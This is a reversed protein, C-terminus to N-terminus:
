VGSRIFDPEKAKPPQNSERVSGQGGAGDGRTPQVRRPLCLVAEALLAVMMSLLFLRWIEQILGDLSGARDDVRTFDLGTFLNAVRNDPLIPSRDESVDRNVALLKESGRYVGSHHAYETSVADPPGAIQQWTTPQEVAADGAVLLRTHGLVAAGATLARQVLVYLVIGNTALSSDDPAPTTACFYVGGRNTPLRALLLQGERLRALPTLEGELGCYRRIQLQGVPLAAGSQTNALIDQDGRWTEIPHDSQTDFWNQWRVGMFEAPGRTRPPFFIINGGREIFSQVAQADNADPLVAHWLVLSITDWDVTTLQERSIIEASCRISPDPSIEAALQLSGSAQPDESVILTQRQPPRDFVFYFDNDAPNEDAPISVKGWGRERAREVPIRHDKLEFTPGDMEVTLESRAGEIEFQVPLSLKADTDGERTVTLSVVLEAAEASQQRRVNTVRVAANRSAIESYALLHFRIGQRLELFLDRLTQWRGSEANWDNQRIDSCIWIETRGTKNASIYEHATELMAPLHASTSAPETAPLKLLVDPSEIERATNSTCEILVWRGSGLMDLTRALQQRGAELKSIVTGPGQQQMSPSRDLLIITTDARGGVTLGLWGSALPRSVAFILGAIVLMRFLLILLQRLRAYGRSMRNAALLFMMAAWRIMQYRRQNILHIIIPLAILPLAALLIPQLFTM